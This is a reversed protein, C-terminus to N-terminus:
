RALRCWCLTVRRRSYVMRMQSSRSLTPAFLRLPLSTSAAHAGLVGNVLGVGMPTSSSFNRTDALSSHRITEWSIRKSPLLRPKNPRLVREAIVELPERERHFAESSDPAAEEAERVRSRRLHERLADIAIV